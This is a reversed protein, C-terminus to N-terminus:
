QTRKRSWEFRRQQENSLRTARQSALHRLAFWVAPAASGALLARILLLDSFEWAPEQPAAYDVLIKDTLALLEERSPPAKPETRKPPLPPADGMPEENSLDSGTTPKPLVRSPLSRSEDEKRTLTPNIMELAVMERVLASVILATVPRPLKEESEGGTRLPLFQAVPTSAQAAPVASLPANGTTLVFEPESSPHTAQSWWAIERNFDSGPTGQAGASFHLSSTNSNATPSQAIANYSATQPASLSVGSWRPLSLAIASGNVAYAYGMATVFIPSISVGSEGVIIIVYEGNLIQDASAVTSPRAVNAATKATDHKNTVAPATLANSATSLLCRDELAVLQPRFSRNSMSRRSQARQSGLALRDGFWARCRSFSRSLKELTM